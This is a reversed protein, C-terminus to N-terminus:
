GTRMACRSEPSGRGGGGYGQGLRTEGQRRKNSSYTYKRFSPPFGPAPPAPLRPERERSGPKPPLSKRFAGEQGNIQVLDTPPSVRGRRHERGFQSRRFSIAGPRASGLRAAPSHHSGGSRSPSPPAPAATADAAVPGCTTPGIPNQWIRRMPPSRPPVSISGGLM